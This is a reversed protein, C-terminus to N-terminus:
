RFRDTELRIQSKPGDYQIATRLPPPLRGPLWQRCLICLGPILYKLVLVFMGFFLEMTHNSGLLSQYTCDPALPHVYWLAMHNMDPSLLNTGIPRDRIKLLHTSPLYQYNGCHDEKFRIRGGLM